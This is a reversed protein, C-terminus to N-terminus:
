DEITEKVVFKDIRTMIRDIQGKIYEVESKGAKENLTTQIQQLDNIQAFQQM